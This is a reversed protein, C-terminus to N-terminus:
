IAKQIINESIEVLKNKLDDNFDINIKEYKPRNFDFTKLFTEFTFSLKSEIKEILTPAFGHKNSYKASYSLYSHYLIYYYISENKTNDRVFHLNMNFDVSFVDNIKEIENFIFKKQLETYINSKLNLVCEDLVITELIRSYKIVYQYLVFTFSDTNKSQIKKGDLYIDLNYKKIEKNETDNLFREVIMTYIQKERKINEFTSQNEIHINEFETESIETNISSRFRITKSKVTISVYLPYCKIINNNEDYDIEPKLKTNLYHKVTIKNM